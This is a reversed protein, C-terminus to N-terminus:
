NEIIFVIPLTIKYQVYINNTINKMANGYINSNGSYPM